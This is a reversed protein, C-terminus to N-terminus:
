STKITFIDGLYDAHGRKYLTKSLEIIEDAMKPEKKFVTAFALGVVLSAVQAMEERSMVEGTTTEWQTWARMIYAPPQNMEIIPTPQKKPM